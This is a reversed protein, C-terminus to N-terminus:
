HIIYKLRLGTNDIPLLYGLFELYNRIKDEYLDQEEYTKTSFVNYTIPLNNSINYYKNFRNILNQTQGVKLLTGSNDSLLYIFNGKNYQQLKNKEYTSIIHTVEPFKSLINSILSSDYKINTFGNWESGDVCDTFSNEIFSDSSYWKNFAQKNIAIQNRCNNCYNTRNHSININNKKCRRCYNKNQVITMIKIVNHNFSSVILFLVSKSIFALIILMM